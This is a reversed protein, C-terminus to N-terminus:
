DHAEGTENDRTLYIAKDASSYKWSHYLNPFGNHKCIIGHSDCCECM